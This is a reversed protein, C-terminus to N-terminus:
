IVKQSIQFLKTDQLWQGELSEEVGGEDCVYTYVCKTMRTVRHSQQGIIIWEPSPLIEWFWVPGPGTETPM